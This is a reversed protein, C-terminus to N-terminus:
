ISQSIAKFKDTKEDFYICEPPIDRGLSKIRWGDLCVIKGKTAEKNEIIKETIYSVQDTTPQWEPMNKKIYEDINGWKKKMIEEFANAMHSWQVLSLSLITVDLNEDSLLINTVMSKLKAYDEFWTRAKFIQTSANYIVKTEKDIIHARELSEVLVLNYIHTNIDKDGENSRRFFNGRHITDGLIMNGANLFLVKIKEWPYKKVFEQIFWKISKTDCIDLYIREGAKNEKSTKINIFNKVLADEAAKGITSTESGVVLWIWKHIDSQEKNM